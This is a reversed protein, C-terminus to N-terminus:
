LRGCPSSARPAAASRACGSSRDPPPTQPWGPTRPETEM